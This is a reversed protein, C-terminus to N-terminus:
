SMMELLLDIAWVSAWCVDTSTGSDGGTIISYWRHTPITGAGWPLQHKSMDFGVSVKGLWYWRSAHLASGPQASWGLRHLLLGWVAGRNDTSPTDIQYIVIGEDFQNGIANFGANPPPPLESPVKGYIYRRFQPNPRKRCLSGIGEPLRSVVEDPIGLLANGAADSLPGFQPMANPDGFAYATRQIGDSWIALPRGHSDRIYRENQSPAPAKSIEEATLERPVIPDNPPTRISMAVGGSIPQPVVEPKGSDPGPPTWSGIQREVLVHEIKTSKMALAEFSNRLQKFKAKLEDSLKARQTTPAELPRSSPQTSVPATSSKPPAVKNPPARNISTELSSPWIARYWAVLTILSLIVAFIFRLKSDWISRPMSGGAYAIIMLTTLLGFLILAPVAANLPKWGRKIHLFGFVAYSSALWVAWVIVQIWWENWHEFVPELVYPSACLAGLILLARAWHNTKITNRQSHSDENPQEGTHNTATGSEIPSAGWQKRAARTSTIEASIPESERYTMPLMDSFELQLYKVLGPVPDNSPDSPNEKLDYPNVFCTQKSDLIARVRKTVDVWTAGCGWKASILIAM